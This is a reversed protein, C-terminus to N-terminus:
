NSLIKVINERYEEDKENLEILNKQFNTNLYLESYMNKENDDDYFLKFKYLGKVLKAKQQNLPFVTFYIREKSFEKVIPQNYLQSIIEILKNTEEGISEFIIVENYFKSNDIESDKIGGELNDLIYIRIGVTINDHKAQYKLNWFGSDLKEKEVITFTLDKWGENDEQNSTLEILKNKEISKCGLLFSFFGM